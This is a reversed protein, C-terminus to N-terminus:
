RINTGLIGSLSGVVVAIITKFIDSNTFYFSKHEASATIFLVSMYLLATIIGIIIGRQRIKISAYIAGYAISILAIVVTCASKIDDSFDFFSSLVAYSLIMSLTLVFSRLVGKAIFQFSNATM